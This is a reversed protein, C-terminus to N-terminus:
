KRPIGKSVEGPDCAADDHAKEVAEPASRVDLILALQCTLSVVYSM